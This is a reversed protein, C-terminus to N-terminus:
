SNEEPIEESWVWFSAFDSYGDLQEKFRDKLNFEKTFKQGIPNIGLVLYDFIEKGTKPGKSEGTGSSIICFKNPDTADRVVIRRDGGLRYVDMLRIVVKGM